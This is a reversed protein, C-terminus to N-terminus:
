KQEALRRQNERLLKEIRATTRPGGLEPYLHKQQEIVRVIGDPPHRLSTRCSLDGVLAEWRIESRSSLGTALRHFTSLAASCEGIEAQARATGLIARLVVNDTSLGDPQEPLEASFVQIARAPQGASLHAEGLQVRIARRAQDTLGGPKAPNLPATGGPSESWSRIARALMLATQAREHAADVEGSSRLRDVEDSAVTYLEQLTRGAGAPDAAVYDPIGDIVEDLRRLGDYARLRARWVRGALSELEPYKRDFGDLESLAQEFRAISPLVAAEAAALRAEGLMAAIERKRASDDTESSLIDARIMLDRLATNMEDARSKLATPSTGEHGALYQVAASLVQVRRLGAELYLVHTPELRAFEGAAADFENLNLLLEAYFFRWYRAADSSPFQPLLTEFARRNLRGLEPDNPSENFLRYTIRVALEASALADRSAPYDRAIELFRASALRDDGLRHSAVALRRLVEPALDRSQRDMEALFKEGIPIARALLSEAEEVNAAAEDVLGAVMAAQQVPNLSDLDSDPQMSRYLIAFLEDCREPEYAALEALRAWAKRRFEEVEAPRDAPDMSDARSEFVSQELLAAVLRLLFGDAGPSAGKFGAEGPPMAGKSGAEGPTWENIRHRLQELASGAAHWRRQDRENRVREIASLLVAPPVAGKSGVEGATRARNEGASSPSVRSRGAPSEPGPGTQLPSAAQRDNISEARDFYERAADHRGLRRATMGALAHAAVQVRSQEQPTELIAPNKELAVAVENLRDGYEADPSSRSIADYFLAWLLVYEANPAIRDLLEIHASLEPRDLERATLSDIRAYEAAIAAELSRLVAVARVAAERLRPGDEPFGGAFGPKLPSHGELYLINTAAPDAQEFVLSYALSYMWDFRRPDEPHNRILGDLIENASAIASQRESQSRSRDRFRALEVERRMLQEDMPSQLPYDRLHLDLLDHLGRRQLGERFVGTSLRREEAAGGPSAPNLPATGGALAPNLPATGGPTEAPLYAAALALSIVAFTLTRLM